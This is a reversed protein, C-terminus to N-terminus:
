VTHRVFPSDITAERGRRGLGFGLEYADGTQGRLAFRQALSVLDFVEGQRDARQQIAAGANAHGEGPGDIGIAAAFEGAFVAIGAVGVLEHFHAVAHVELLLNEDLLM